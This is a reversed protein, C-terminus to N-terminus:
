KKKVEVIEVKNDDWRDLITQYTRFDGQIRTLETVTEDLKTRFDDREKSLYNFRGEAENKLEILTEKDM